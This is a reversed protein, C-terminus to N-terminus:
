NRFENKFNTDADNQWLHLLHLMFCCVYTCNQGLCTTLIQNLFKIQSIAIKM